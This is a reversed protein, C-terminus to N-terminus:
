ERGKGERTWQQLVRGKRSQSVSALRFWVGSHKNEFISEAIAGICSDSKEPMGRTNTPPLDGPPLSDTKTRQQNTNVSQENAPPGAPTVAAHIRKHMTDATTIRIDSVLTRVGPTLVTMLLELM